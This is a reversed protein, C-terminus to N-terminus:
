VLNSEELNFFCKIWSILIAREEIKLGRKRSNDWSFIKGTIQINGNFNNIEKIWRKAEQKLQIPAILELEDEDMYHTITEIGKLTKLKEMTYEGM